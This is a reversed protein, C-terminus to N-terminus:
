SPLRPIKPPRGRYLLADITNVSVKRKRQIRYRDALVQPAYLVARFLGRFYAWGGGKIVSSACLRVAQMVFLPLYKWFLWGPMNKIYLMFFNKVSHYRSFSGLKSSTANVHHYVEAKPEYRVKWGALRARFSIDVDEFYAFFKEDFIGIEEFMATRYLTAAAPASFIEEPKDYQGNDTQNRGRPFPMGWISYFDGTSDFHKKDMHLQKASVIGTNQHSKLVDVLRELWRKELVVDNNVLVIADYGEAMAPRIGANVGGDFGTNEPLKILRVKPFDKEVIEATNDVSGNDVVIIDVPHSQAELSRLCAGILDAANWSPIVACVKM